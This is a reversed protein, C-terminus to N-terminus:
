YEQVAAHRLTIEGVTRPICGLGLLKATVEGPQFGCAPSLSMERNRFDEESDRFPMSQQIILM